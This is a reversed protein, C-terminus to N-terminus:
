FIVSKETAGHNFVPQIESKPRDFNQIAIDKSSAGNINLSVKNAQEFKVGDLM